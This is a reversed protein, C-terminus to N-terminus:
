SGGGPGYGLDRVWTLASSNPLPHRSGAGRATDAAGAAKNRSLCGTGVDQGPHVQACRALHGCCQRGGRLLSVARPLHAQFAALSASPPAALTHLPGRLPAPSSHSRTRSVRLM